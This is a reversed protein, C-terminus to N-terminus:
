FRFYIDGGVLMVGSILTSPRGRRVDMPESLPSVGSRTRRDDMVDLEDVGVTVLVPPVPGERLGKYLVDIHAM